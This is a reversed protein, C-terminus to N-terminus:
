NTKIKQTQLIGILNLRRTCDLLILHSKAVQAFIAVGSTKTSMTCFFFLVSNDDFQRASLVLDSNEKISGPYM